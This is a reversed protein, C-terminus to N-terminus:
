RGKRQWILSVIGMGLCVWACPRVPMGDVFWATFWLGAVFLSLIGLVGYIDNFQSM